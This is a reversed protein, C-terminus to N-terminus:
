LRSHNPLTPQHHIRINSTTANRCGASIGAPPILIDSFGSANRFLFYRCPTLWSKLAFKKFFFQHINM